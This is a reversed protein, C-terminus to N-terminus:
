SSRAWQRRSRSYRGPASGKTSGTGTFLSNLLYAVTVIPFLLKIFLGSAHLETSKSRSQHNEEEQFAQDEM